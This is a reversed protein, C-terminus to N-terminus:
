EDEHKVPLPVSCKGGGALAQAIGVCAGARTQVLFYARLYFISTSVDHIGWVSESLVSSYRFLLCVLFM